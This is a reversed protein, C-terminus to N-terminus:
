LNPIVQSFLNGIAPGLLRLTVILIVAVLILIFAYEAMGQGNEKLYNM